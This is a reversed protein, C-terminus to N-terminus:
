FLDDQGAAANFHLTVPTGQRLSNDPDTVIIRLRYVPGSHQHSTEVTSSIFEAAPSVFGIHGHWPNHPQSDTYILVQTGPLAQQLNVENVYARIWVPRTLSLTLVPSGANLLTGPEIARTMVTGNSPALLTTDQLNLEAQALRAQAQNLHSQAQEIRQSLNDTHPPSLKDSAATLIADARDRAARAGAQTSKTQWLTLQDMDASSAGVSAAHIADVASTAQPIKESGYGAKAQVLAAKADAVDAQAEALANQYPAPNLTGLPQGQIISDGEDVLLTDLRGTVRFSLDVTRMDVNGYLMLGTDPRSYYWQFLVSSAVVLILVALALMGKNRQM